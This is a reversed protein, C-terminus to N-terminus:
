KEFWISSQRVVEEHPVTRGTRVDEEAAALKQTLYLRYILEDVDVDEPLEQVMELLQKRAITM